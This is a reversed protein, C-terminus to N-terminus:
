IPFSHSRTYMCPWQPLPRGQHTALTVTIAILAALVLCMALLELWWNRFINASLKTPRRRAEDALKKLIIPKRLSDNNEPLITAASPANDSLARGHGHNATEEENEAPKMLATSKRPSDIKKPLPTAPSLPNSSLAQDHGHNPTEEKNEAPKKFVTSKRLPDDKDPLLTATSLADGSLARDYGRSSIDKSLPTDLLQTQNPSCAAPEYNGDM